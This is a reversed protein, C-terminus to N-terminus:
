LGALLGLMESKEYNISSNYCLYSKNMTRDEKSYGKIQTHTRTACLAEECASIVVHMLRQTHNM